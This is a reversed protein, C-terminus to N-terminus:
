GHHLSSFPRLPETVRRHARLDHRRALMATTILTTGGETVRFWRADEDADEGVVLGEPVATGPAVIARTLRVAPAVRAGPMLVSQDLMTWRRRDAAGLLPMCLRLGGMAAQTAFRSAAVAVDPLLRPVVGPVLPRPLPGPRASVELVAQRYADLTGVDRWYFPRGEAAVPYALAVGAGVAAPMVDHGFDMVDPHALLLARLWPWAFVYIGMSALAHHPDGPIPQPLRPKEVFSRIRGDTEAAVIGFDRAADLPVPLVALTAEAGAARHAAIMPRYDMAYIHDGALVVVERAGLADLTEINARVADATGRYGRPGATAPGDRLILAGSAFAGSWVTTLHRVLTGPCHQTAVVMRMLGSRVANALTYDVIRHGPTFHVAPKCEARTLEHLRTGQGGALLVAVTATLDLQALDPQALAPAHDAPM